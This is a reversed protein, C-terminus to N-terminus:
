RASGDWFEGAGDKGRLDVEVPASIRRVSNAAWLTGNTEYIRYWLLAVGSLRLHQGTFMNQKMVTMGELRLDFDLVMAGSGALM